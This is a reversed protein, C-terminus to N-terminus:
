VAPSSGFGWQGWCCASGWYLTDLLSPLGEWVTSPLVPRTTDMWPELQAQDCGAMAGNATETDLTLCGAGNKLGHEQCDLRRHRLEPNRRPARGEILLSLLILLSWDTKLHKAEATFPWQSHLLCQLSRFKGRQSNLWLHHSRVLICKSSEGETLESSGGNGHFHSPLSGWNTSRWRLPQLAGM